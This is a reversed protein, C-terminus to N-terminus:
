DSYCVARVEEYTTLPMPAVGGESHCRICTQQLIPAVDKSYTPPDDLHDRVREAAYNESPFAYSQAAFGVAAAVMVGFRLGGIIRM